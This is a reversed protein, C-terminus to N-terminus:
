KIIFGTPIRRTGTASSPDSVIEGNYIMESSSGGDLNGVNVAGYEKMVNVVDEVSAGLTNVSRGDLVLLLLARDERQAIATRPNTGSVLNQTQIEGNIMLAGSAGTHMTFSVGWQIGRSVAEEGTMDGVHLLGDPDLGIVTYKGAPLGYVINGDSIVLGQPIGGNGHGNDDNFGGANTGAIGGYKEVMDTLQLGEQFGINDMTGLFVRKPDKVILLNGRVNNEAIEIIQLDRDELDEPRIQGNPSVDEMEAARWIGSVKEFTIRYEKNLRFSYEDYWRKATCEGEVRVNCTFCGDSVIEPSVFQLDNYTIETRSCFVMAEKSQLIYNYLRSGQVTKNLVMWMAGESGSVAYNMYLQYYEATLEQMEDPLLEGDAQCAPSLLAFIMAAICLINMLKETKRM